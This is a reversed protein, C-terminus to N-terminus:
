PTFTITQDNLAGTDNSPGADFHDFLIVGTGMSGYDYSAQVSAATDSTHTGDFVGVLIDESLVTGYDFKISGDDFLTITGTNNWTADDHDQFQTHTIVFRNACQQYLMQNPRTDAGHADADMDGWFYAVTPQTVQTAGEDFASNGTGFTLGGNSNLFVSTHTQGYFPFDFGLTFTVQLDADDIGDFPSTADLVPVPFLDVVADCASPDADTTDADTTDADPMADPPPPADPIPPGDPFVTADPVPGAADIDETGSACGSLLILLAIARM